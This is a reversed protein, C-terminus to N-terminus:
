SEHDASHEPRFRLVANQLAQRLIAPSTKDKLLYGAAGFGLTLDRSVSRDDSTFIVIPLNDGASVSVARYSNHGSLEPMGLDLLVVDIGPETLRIMAERLNPTWEVRFHQEGDETLRIQVLEAAEADDEVLLVQIPRGVGTATQPTLAPPAIKYKVPSACNAQMAMM